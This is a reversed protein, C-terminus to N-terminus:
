SCYQASHKFSMWWVCHGPWLIKHNVHMPNCQNSQHHDPCHIHRAVVTKPAVATVSIM